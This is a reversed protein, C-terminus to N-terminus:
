SLSSDHLTTDCNEKDLRYLIQFTRRLNFVLFHLVYLSQSPITLSTHLHFDAEPPMLHVVQISYSLSISLTIHVGGTLRSQRTVTCGHM